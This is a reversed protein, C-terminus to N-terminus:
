SGVHRDIPAAQAKATGCRHSIQPAMGVQAIESAAKGGRKTSM